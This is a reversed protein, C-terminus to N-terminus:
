RPCLQANIAGGRVPMRKPTSGMGAPLAGTGTPASGTTVTGGVLAFAAGGILAGWGAGPGKDILYGTIAGVLAGGAGSGIAAKYRADM